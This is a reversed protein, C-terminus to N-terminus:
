IALGHFGSCATSARISPAREVLLNEGVELIWSPGPSRRDFDMRLGILDATSPPSCAHRDFFVPAL